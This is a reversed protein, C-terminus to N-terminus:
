KIDPGFNLGYKNAPNAPTTPTTPQVPTVAPPVAPTTPQTSDPKPTLASVVAPGVLTGLGLSAVVLAAAALPAAWSSKTAVPTTAVAPPPSPPAVPAPYYHNTTVPSHNSIVEDESQPVPGLNLRNVAALHAREERLVARHDQLNSLYDLELFNTANDSATGGPPTATDSSTSGPPPVVGQGNLSANMSSM